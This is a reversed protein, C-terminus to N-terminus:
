ASLRAKLLPMIKAAIEGAGAVGTIDVWNIGPEKRFWTFQRKAYRKTNRKILRVAEELPYEGALHGAIEKYGIAQMASPSPKMGLVRRVEEVLGRQVMSEVREEIMRYLEARDRTLGFKVFDYPLPSTLSERLESMRMGSKMFVELSRVIRRRDGESIGEAAAPDLRTLEGYLSATDMKNLSDRLGRDAGPGRFLGRTMARIYLGTGGVVLPPRGESLLGELVPGVAELYRGASFGEGPEVVDVMHHRVTRRERATPKETGIDMHRYIQMSDASIIETDLEKAIAISAGSKGACTPGVLLIVTKKGGQGRM